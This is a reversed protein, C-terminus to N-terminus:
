RVKKYNRPGGNIQILEKTSRYVEDRTRDGVWAWGTHPRLHMAGFEVRGAEIAADAQEETLGTAAMWQYLIDVHRDGELVTTGDIRIAKM